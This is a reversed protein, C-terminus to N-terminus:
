LQHDALMKGVLVTDTVPVFIVIFALVLRVLYEEGAGLTIGDVGNSLVALLETLRFLIFFVRPTPFIDTGLWLAPQLLVEM